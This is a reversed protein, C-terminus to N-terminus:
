QASEKYIYPDGFYMTGGTNGDARFLVPRQEGVSRDILGWLRHLHFLGFAM